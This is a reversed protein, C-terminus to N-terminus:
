VISKTVATAQSCRQFFNSIKQNRSAAPHIEFLYFLSHRYHRCHHHHALVPLSYDLESTCDHLPAVAASVIGWTYSSFMPACAVPTTHGSHCSLLSSYSSSQMDSFFSHNLLGHKQWVVAAETKTAPVAPLPAISSHAVALFKQKTKKEPV